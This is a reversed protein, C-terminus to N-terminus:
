RNPSGPLIECTMVAEEGQPGSNARGGARGTGLAWVQGELKM